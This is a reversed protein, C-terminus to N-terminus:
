GLHVTVREGLVESSPFFSDPGSVNIEVSPHGVFPTLDLAAGNNVDSFYVNFRAANKIQALEAMNEANMEFVLVRRLGDIGNVSAAGEIKDSHVIHLSELGNLREVGSLNVNECVILDLQRLSPFSDALVSFSVQSSGAITLKSLLPLSPILDVGFRIENKSMIRLTTLEELESLWSLEKEKFSNKGIRVTKLAKLAGLRSLDLEAPVRELTLSTLPPVGDLWDLTPIFSRCHLSDLQRFHRVGWLLDPNDIILSQRALPSKSMVRKAYEEVDFQTWARSLEKYVMRRGDSAFGSLVDLAAEGGVLSATRVTASAPGALLGRGSRPLLPLVSEGVAALEKADSVRSPPVLASMKERVLVYTAEDIEDANELCAGALLHLRTKYEIESDGRDLLRRLIESREQPRAHGVAMTVVEHWQDLHANQVLAGVDNMTIITDAALYEQFTRHIFDVRGEVPQRLLGSRVMLYKYVDAGAATISPMSKLALTIQEVAQEQTSDSLKNRLLWYAFNGIIRQKQMLTLNPADAHKIRREVDRRVLLMELAAAYLEMRGEPLQMRRDRSLTCLLACLLPNSSLKRLQAQQRIASILEDEFGDLEEVQREDAQSPLCARAAAHWHHVFNKIDSSSMPLMDVSTFEERKLWQEEAAGPRSTVIYRAEPYTALLENLWERAEQRRTEPLEDVGDILVFARGSRLARNVWQPPMEGALHRGTESLFEHAVPLSRDAFRRLPVIFPLFGNFKRLEGGFSRRVANVALWFLLTTKGSGADGRLLIRDFNAVASESRVGGVAEELSSGEAGLLEKLETAPADAGRQRTVSEAVSLSIYATSLPYARQTTDSVTIGFLELQDLKDVVVEAYREEFAIDDQTADEIVSKRIRELDKAIHTMRKLQEVTARALFSPWTTIFNLTQAAVESVLRSYLEEGAQSLHIREVLAISDAKVRASYLDPDFDFEFIDRPPNEFSQCVADIVAEVEGSELSRYENRMLPEVVSLVHKAFARIDKETIEVTSIVRNKFRGTSGGQVILAGAKPALVSRTASEAVGKLVGAAVRYTLVELGPM